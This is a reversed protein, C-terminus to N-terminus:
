DIVTGDRTILVFGVDPDTHITTGISQLATVLMDFEMRAILQTDPNSATRITRYLAKLEHWREVIWIYEDTDDM